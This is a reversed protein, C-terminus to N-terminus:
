EIVIERYTGPKTWDVVRVTGRYRGRLWTRIQDDSSGDFSLFGPPMTGSYGNVIPVNARMAVWMAFVTGYPGVHVVGKQDVFFPVVYGVDAGRLDAATREVHPYFDDRAFHQPKTGLQEYVLVAMLPVFVAARLWAYRIREGLAHLWLLGGLLGFLYVVIHIRGLVRVAHGGPFMRAVRWLSDKTYPEGTITLAFWAGATVLAAMAVPWPAARGRRVVVLHAAAALMLVVIAFGSFLQSLYLSPECYPLLTQEWKSGPIGALWHTLRPLSCDGFTRTAGRNVISYPAFLAAMLAGWVLVSRVIAGFRARVFALLARGAGPTLVILSPVFVVLAVVLFWGLYFGTLCQLFVSAAARNLARLTPEAVLACSYWVAFLMWFKCIMQQHPLQAIAAVSYAWFYAGGMVLVHALRFWRAVVVFAVFNIASLVIQWWSYALDYPLAVRLAWYVPASGWLTESYYMTGREPYCYPGTIFTGRYSPDTLSLWSNELIYHNLMGDGRESQAAAFDSDFMPRFSQYTGLACLAAYLALLVVTRM